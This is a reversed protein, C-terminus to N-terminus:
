PCNCNGTFNPVCGKGAPCDKQAAAHANNAATLATVCATRTSAEEYVNLLYVGTLLALTALAGVAILGLAPGILPISTLSAGLGTLSGGVATLAAAVGVGAQLSTLAITVATGIYSGLAAGLGILFNRLREWAAKLDACETAHKAKKNLFDSRATYFAALADKCEETECPNREETPM